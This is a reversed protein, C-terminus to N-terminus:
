RVRYKNQLKYIKVNTKDIQKQYKDHVRNAVIGQRKELLFKRKLLTNRQKVFNHLALKSKWLGGKYNFLKIM